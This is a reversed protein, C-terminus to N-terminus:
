DDATPVELDGPMDDNTKEKQYFTNVYGCNTCTVTNTKLDPYNEHSCHWCSVKRVSHDGRDIHWQVHVMRETMSSFREECPPFSCDYRNKSPRRKRPIDPDLSSAV